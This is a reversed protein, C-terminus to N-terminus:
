AAPELEPLATAAAQPDAPTKTRARTLVDLALYRRDEAWDDHQDALDAGVLRLTADRDPFLVVSDSPPLPM